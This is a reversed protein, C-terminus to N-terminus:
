ERLRLNPITSFRRPLSVHQSYFSFYVLIRARKSVTGDQHATVTAVKKITFSKCDIVSSGSVFDVEQINRKRNQPLFVKQMLSAVKRMLVEARMARKFM